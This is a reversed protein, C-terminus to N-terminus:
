AKKEISFVDRINKIFCSNNEKELVVNGLYYVIIGKNLITGGLYLETASNEFITKFLFREPQFNWVPPFTNVVSKLKEEKFYNSSLIANEIQYNEKFTKNEEVFKITFNSSKFLKEVNAKSFM